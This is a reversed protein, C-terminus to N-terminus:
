SIGPTTAGHRRVWGATDQLDAAGPAPTEGFIAPFADSGLGTDDATAQRAAGTPHQEGIRLSCGEHAIDAPDRTREHCGCSGHLEIVLDMAVRNRVKM